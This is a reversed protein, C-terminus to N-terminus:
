GADSDGDGATGSDSGGMGANAGASGGAGGNGGGSGGSGGNNGASGASGGAGSGGDRDLPCTCDFTNSNCEVEWEETCSGSPHCIVPQGDFECESPELPRACMCDTWVMQSTCQRSGIGGNRCMCGTMTFGPQMCPEGEPGEDSKSGSDDSCGLWLCSSLALSIIAFRTTSSTM